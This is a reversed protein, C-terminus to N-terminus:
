RSPSVAIASHSACNSSLSSPTRLRIRSTAIRSNRSPNIADNLSYQADSTTPGMPEQARSPVSILWVRQLRGSPTEVDVSADIRLGLALVRTELRTADQFTNCIIRDGRRDALRGLFSVIVNSSVGAVVFNVPTGPLEMQLIDACLTQCRGASSPNRELARELRDVTAVARDVFVVPTASHRTLVGYGIKGHDCCLDWVPLAPDVLDVM